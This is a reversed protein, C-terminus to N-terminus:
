VGAKEGSVRLEAYRRTIRDLNDHCWQAMREEERLSLDLPAQASTHGALDALTLLSKYAAIEYHEFAYNALANKLVEDPAFAHGVAAINAMAATIFDKVSSNSSGLSSLLEDLRDRQVESETIHRRLSAEVDPYNELREVQRSLLQIAETELARANILGTIYLDRISDSM